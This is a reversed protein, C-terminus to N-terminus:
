RYLAKTRGWSAADVSVPGMGIPVDPCGGDWTPLTIGDGCNAIAYIAAEQVTIIGNNNVDADGELGAAFCPTFVGPTPCATGTSATITCIRDDLANMADAYQGSGCSDLILLTGDIASGLAGQLLEPTLRTCDPGVPSGDVLPEGLGSYYVIYTKGAPPVFTEVDTAMDLGSRNESIVVFHDANALAADMVALDNPVTPLDEACKAEYDFNGILLATSQAGSLSPVFLAAVALLSGISHFFRRTTKMM